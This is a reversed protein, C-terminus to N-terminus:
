KSNIHCQALSGLWATAAALVNDGVGSASIVEDPEISGGYIRGSRDAFVATTIHLQAGDSLRFPSNATSLGRTKHGFSRTERRGVFALAVAEGSSMTRPGLLVAVPSNPLHELHQAQLTSPQLIQNWPTRNSKSVFYGLNGEGLLPSIGELMPWMNGGTNERLDIVWCKAGEQTLRILQARLEAAFARRREPSGGGFGPVVVHGLLGQVLNARIGLETTRADSQRALAQQAPVLFSHSDQLAALATRIAPYTQEPDQAADAMEYLRPTLAEWDVRDAHLANARIIHVAEDIYKRVGDRILNASPFETESGVPEKTWATYRYRASGLITRPDAGSSGM